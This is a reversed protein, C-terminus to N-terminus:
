NRYSSFAFYFMLQTLFIVSWLITIIKLIQLLHAQSYTPRFLRENLQTETEDLPVTPVSHLSYPRQPKPRSVFIIIAALVFPILLFLFPVPVRQTVQEFAHIQGPSPQFTVILMWLVGSVIRLGILFLIGILFVQGFSYTKKQATM